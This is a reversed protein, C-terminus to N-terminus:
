CLNTLIEMVMLKLKKGMKTIQNLALGTEVPLGHLAVLVGMLLTTRIDLLDVTIIAVVIEGRVSDVM